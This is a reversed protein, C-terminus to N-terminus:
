GGRVWLGGWEGSLGFVAGFRGDPRDLDEGPHDEVVDGKGQRERDGRADHGAEVGDCVGDLRQVGGVAVGDGVREGFLTQAFEEVRQGGDAGLRQVFVGPALGEDAGPQAAATQGGHPHRQM